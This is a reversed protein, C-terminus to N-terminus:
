VNKPLTIQKPTTIKNIKGSATEGVDIEAIKRSNSIKKAAAKAKAPTLKKGKEDTTPM